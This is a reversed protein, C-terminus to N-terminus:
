QIGALAIHEVTVRQEHADHDGSASGVREVVADPSKGDESIVTLSGISHVRTRLRLGRDAHFAKWTFIQRRLGVGCRGGQVLRDCHSILSVRRKSVAFIM